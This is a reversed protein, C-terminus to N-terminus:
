GNTNGEMFTFCLDGNFIIVDFTKFVISLYEETIDDKNTEIVKDGSYITVNYFYNSSLMSLFDRITM